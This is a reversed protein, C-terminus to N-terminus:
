RELIVATYSGGSGYSVALIRRLGDARVTQRRPTGGALTYADAEEALEGHLLLAAHALGMASSAARGEGMREKVSLVPVAGFRESLVQVEIADVAKCGNAFGIVADIEDATLGGDALAEDIAARLAGASGTLTGFPVSDHATGCGRIRCYVEANRAEAHERTELVMTVSGDSLSFGSGESYPSSVEDTTVGLAGYLEALIEGNEDSGSVLMADAQGNRLVEAAYVASQLGSQAGNTVTVSYGRVGTCISLYGGAANYVTNPFKFASGAANGKEAIMKQFECSPGLAGESSGVAIGIRAANDEGVTLGSDHLAALGSVAQLQSFHDLKRYFAMKLGVANFDEAGVRSAASGACIREEAKCAEIYRAKGNGLPTVMGMGTLVIEKKDPVPPLKGGERGFVISANNGGFAFSNSMVNALKKPVPVNPCFNLAGAKQELTALDEEAYGLTPPMLNETLAKVTFVAEIAGAAGLCHGTMAKTSSVGPTGHEPDFITHLSLFEAEDNKATGTGHANIYDIDAARLGSAAIATRIAAIQGAGDPRPATIHFADSSVGAGLVECYIKAGRAKAHAYSEVILAGAGEGLTIGHSHNFPSCPGDELAHLSLFGAYPVPSFADAGGAVVIDAKGARILDCAYAISITGAACANAINTVTGGAHCRAAVHNALASIPMNLINERSKAETYYKEISRGGGVCSGMIVSARRDGNFDSVAADSLAEEVAKLCLAVTRDKGNEPFDAIEASFDTYCNDTNVTATRGIGSKSELISQWCEPLSRGIASIAGLGTVVCRNRDQTM